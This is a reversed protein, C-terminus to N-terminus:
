ILASDPDPECQVYVLSASLVGDLQQIKGFAAGTERHDASEITVILRGLQSVAHVEVGAMAALSGRVADVAERRANVVISSINM